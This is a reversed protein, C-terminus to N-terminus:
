ENGVGKVPMDKKYLEELDRDTATLKGGRPAYAFSREPYRSWDVAESCWGNRGRMTEWCQEMSVFGCSAGGSAPSLCYNKKANAALANAASAPTVSGAVFLSAATFALTAIAILKTRSKMKTETTPCERCPDMENDSPM